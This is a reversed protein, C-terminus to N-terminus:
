LLGEMDFTNILEGDRIEYVGTALFEDPEVTDKNVEENIELVEEPSIVAKPMIIWEHISSPILYSEGGFLDNVKQRVKESVILGAGYFKDKNTLVMMGSPDESKELMGALSLIQLESESNDECIQILEADSVKWEKMTKETIHGIAEPDLQVYFTLLFDKYYTYHIDKEKLESEREPPLIRPLVRDKYVDM